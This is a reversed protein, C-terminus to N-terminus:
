AIYNRQEAISRRNCMNNVDMIPLCIYIVAVRHMHSGFTTIDILRMNGLCIVQATIAKTMCVQPRRPAVFSM